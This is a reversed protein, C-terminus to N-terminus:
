SRSVMRVQVDSNDDLVQITQDQSQMLLAAEEESIVEYTGDGAARVLQIGEGTDLQMIGHESDGLVYEEVHHEEDNESTVTGDPHMIVTPEGAVVTGDDQLYQVQTNGVDNMAVINGEEDLYHIVNGECMAEAEANTGVEADILSKTEVGAEFGAEVDPETDVDAEADVDAETDADIEIKTNAEAEEPIEELATEESIPSADTM